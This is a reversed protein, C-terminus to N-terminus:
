RTINMENEVEFYNKQTLGINEYFINNTELLKTVNDLNNQDIEMLMDARIKEM